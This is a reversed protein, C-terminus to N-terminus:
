NKRTYNYINYINMLVNRQEIERDPRIDNAAAAVHNKQNLIDLLWDYIATIKTYVGPFGARGCGKGWSVLGLLEYHVGTREKSVILVIVNIPHIQFTFTLLFFFMIETDM